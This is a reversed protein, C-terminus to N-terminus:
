IGVFYFYFEFTWKIKSIYSLELLVREGLGLAWGVSGTFWRAKHTLGKRM